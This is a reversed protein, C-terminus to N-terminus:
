DNKLGFKKLTLQATSFRCNDKFLQTVLQDGSEGIPMTNTAFYLKTSAVAEAPLRALQAGIELAKELVNEDEALYDALSLRFAEEGSIASGGLTLLRAKFPGVRYALMQLGWPPIWGIQVEPLHWRATHSTVVIDCAAALIFGGGLAFGEVASIVPVRLYAINRVFKATRLEHECMQDLTLGSLEKLDSGACFGPAQGTLIIAGVEKQESLEYMTKELSSVIGDSLANRREPRNITVLAVNGVLKTILFNNM